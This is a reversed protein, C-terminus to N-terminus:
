TRTCDSEVQLFTRLTKPISYEKTEKFLHQRQTPIDNHKPQTKERRSEVLKNKFEIFRRVNNLNRITSKEVQRENHWERKKSEVEVSM